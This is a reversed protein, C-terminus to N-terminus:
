TQFAAAFQYFKGAAFSSFLIAALLLLRRQFVASLQGLKIGLWIGIASDLSLAMISGSLVLLWNETTGSLAAILIQTKDGTEAILITSFVLLCIKKSCSIKTLKEEEENDDSGRFYSFGYCIGFILFILGAAFHLWTAPVFRYVAQGVTVALVSSVFFAGVAGIFIALPKRCRSSLLLLSIQTRDGFEAMFVALFSSIFNLMFNEQETTKYSLFM